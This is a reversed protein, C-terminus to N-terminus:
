VGIARRPPEFGEAWVHDPDWFRIDGNKRCYDLFTDNVYFWFIKGCESCRVFLAGPLHKPDDNTAFGVVLGGDEENKFWNPDSLPHRCHNDPCRTGVGNPYSTPILTGVGFSRLGM